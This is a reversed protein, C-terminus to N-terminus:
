AAAAAKPILVPVFSNCDFTHCCISVGGDTGHAWWGSPSEVIRRAFALGNSIVGRRFDLAADGAYDDTYVGRCKLERFQGNCLARTVHAVTWKAPLAKLPALSVFPSWTRVGKRDNRTASFGLATPISGYGYRGDVWPLAMVDAHLRRFDCAVVGYSELYACMTRMGVDDNHERNEFQLTVQPCTAGARLANGLDCIIVKAGWCDCWISVSLNADQIYYLGRQNLLTLLEPTTPVQFFTESM